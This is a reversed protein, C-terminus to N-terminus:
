SKNIDTRGVGGQPLNPIEGIIIMQIHHLNSCFQFQSFSFIPPLMSHNRQSEGLWTSILGPDSIAQNNHANNKCSHMVMTKTRRDANSLYIFITALGWYPIDLQDLPM